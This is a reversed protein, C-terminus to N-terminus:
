LAARKAAYMERDADRLVDEAVRHQANAQAVGISLSLQFEGEPLVIPQSLADHIRAVVPDIGDLGAVRELLVVFEDGGYRTVHDGERVCGSLRDAVERLVRDGLLHGYCDNIKKFNDLDVFLVAFERDAARDGELLTALRSLLFARDPLNTLPDRRDSSSGGANVQSSMQFFLGVLPQGGVVVRRCRVSTERASTLSVSITASVEDDTLTSQLLEELAAWSTANVVEEIPRGDLEEESRGLWGRLTSNVFKLRWDPQAVLAIGDFAANLLPLFVSDLSASSDHM